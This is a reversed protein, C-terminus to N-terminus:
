FLLSSTTPSQREPEPLLVPLIKHTLHLKTFIKTIGCVCFHAFDQTQATKTDRVAAPMQLQEVCVFLSVNCFLATHQKRPTYSIARFSDTHLIPAM